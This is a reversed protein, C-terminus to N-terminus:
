RGRSSKGESNDFMGLPGPVVLVCNHNDCHIQLVRLLIQQERSDCALTSLVELTDFGIDQNLPYCM